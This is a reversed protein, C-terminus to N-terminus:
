EKEERRRRMETAILAKIGEIVMREQRATLEELKWPIPRFRNWPALPSRASSLWEILRAEDWGLKAALAQILERPTQAEGGAAPTAPHARRKGPKAGARRVLDDIVFAMSRRDLKKSSDVRAVQRLQARRQEDDFGLRRCLRFYLTRQPRTVEMGARAFSM